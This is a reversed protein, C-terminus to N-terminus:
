SVDISFGRSDAKIEQPLDIINTIIGRKLRGIISPSIPIQSAVGIASNNHKPTLIGSIILDKFFSM